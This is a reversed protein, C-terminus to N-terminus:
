VPTLSGEQAGETSALWRRVKVVIEGHTEGEFSLSPMAQEEHSKGCALRGAPPVPPSRLQRPAPCAVSSRVSRCPGEARSRRPRSRCTRTCRTCPSRRAGRVRTDSSCRRDRPG